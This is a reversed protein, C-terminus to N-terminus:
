SHERDDQAWRPSWLTGDAFFSGRVEGDVRERFAGVRPPTELQPREGDHEAPKDSM